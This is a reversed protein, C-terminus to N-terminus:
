SSGVPPDFRAPQSYLIWLPVDGVQGASPLQVGAQLQLPNSLVVQGTVTETPSVPFQLVLPSPAQLIQELAM